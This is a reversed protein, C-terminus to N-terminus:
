KTMLPPANTPPQSAPPPTTAPATNGSYIVGGHQKVVDLIQSLQKRRIGKLRRGDWALVTFLGGPNRDWILPTTKPDLGNPLNLLRSYTHGSILIGPFPNPDDIKGTADPFKNQILDFFQNFSTIPNTTNEWQYEGLVPGLSRMGSVNLFHDHSGRGGFPSGLELVKVVIFLCVALALAVKTFKIWKKM